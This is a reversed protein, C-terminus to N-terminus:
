LRRTLKTQVHQFPPPRDDSMDHRGLQVVMGCFDFHLGATTRAAFVRLDIDLRIYTHILACSQM